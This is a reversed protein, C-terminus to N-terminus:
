WEILYIENRSDATERESERPHKWPLPIYRQFFALAAGELRNSRQSHIILIPLSQSIAGPSCRLISYPDYIGDFSFSSTRCPFNAIIFLSSSALPEKLAM